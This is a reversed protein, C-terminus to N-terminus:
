EIAGVGIIARLRAGDPNTSRIHHLDESIGTESDHIGIVFERRVVSSLVALFEALAVVDSFWGPSENGPDPLSVNLGLDWGPLDEPRDSLGKRHRQNVVHPGECVWKRQQIFRNFAALLEDEVDSLDAGSGYAYLVHRAM